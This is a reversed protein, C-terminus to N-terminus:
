QPIDKLLAAREEPSMKQLAAKLQLATPRRGGGPVRTVFPEAVQKLAEFNPLLFHEALLCVVRNQDVGLDKAAKRLIESAELTLGLSTRKPYDKTYM